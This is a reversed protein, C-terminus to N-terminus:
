APAAPNGGRLRLLSREFQELEPETMVGGVRLQIEDDFILLAEDVCAAGSPTLELLNSRRDEPNAVRRCLGAAEIKDVVKSAGGVSIAFATAVDYVRQGPERRLLFLVEFWTLPLGCDSRLRLDVAAWLETEFRVLEHYIRRLNAMVGRIVVGPLGFLIPWRPEFM